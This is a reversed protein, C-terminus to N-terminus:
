IRSIRAADIEPFRRGYCSRRMFAPRKYRCFNTFMNRLSTGKQDLSTWPINPFAKGCAMPITLLFESGDNPFGHHSSAGGCAVDINNMATYLDTAAAFVRVRLFSRILTNSNRLSRFRRTVSSQGTQMSLKHRPRCGVIFMVHQPKYHSPFSGNVNDVHKHSSDNEFVSIIPGNPTQFQLPPPAHTTLNM